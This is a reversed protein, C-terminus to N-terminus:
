SDSRYVRGNQWEPGPSFHELRTFGEPNVWWKKEKAHNQKLMRESQKNKREETWEIKNNFFFNNKGSQGLNGLKWEPGPSEKQFLTEGIDNYWWKRGYAPNKDGQKNESQKLRSKPDRLAKIRKQAVEPTQLLLLGVSDTKGFNPNKEGVLVPPASAKPNLNYCQEKGFWMDLLAQELERDESNDSWVEWVFADPDARLANQFPYNETSRLHEKKRKEFNIASGIYFKGNITNTAKYTDM